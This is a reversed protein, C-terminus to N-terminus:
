IQGDYFKGYCLFSIIQLKRWFTAYKRCPFLISMGTSNSANNAKFKLSIGFEHGMEKQTDETVNGNLIFLM